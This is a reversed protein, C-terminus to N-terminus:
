HDGPEADPLLQTILGRLACDCIHCVLTVSIRCVDKMKGASVSGGGGGTGYRGGM